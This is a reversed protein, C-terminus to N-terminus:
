GEVITNRDLLRSTPQNQRGIVYDMAFDAAQEALLKIPGDTCGILVIQYEFIRSIEDAALSAASTAGELALQAGRGTIVDDGSEVILVFANLYRLGGSYSNDFYLLHVPNLTQSRRGSEPM